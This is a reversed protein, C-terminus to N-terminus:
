RAKVETSPSLVVDKVEIDHRDTGIDLEYTKEVTASDRDSIRIRMKYKDQNIRDILPLSLTHTYSVNAKMDFTDTIDDVTERSDIGRLVAEIQVDNLDADSKLRVKVDLEDGRDVDLIFNTSSETVEDGNVKVFEVITAAFAMSSMLVSIILVALLSFLKKMM